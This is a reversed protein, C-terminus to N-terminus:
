VSFHYFVYRVVLEVLPAIFIVSDFRDLIGGHGPFITGYDKIGNQRKVASAFLDGCIGLVAAVIGLLAIALYYGLKVNLSSSFNFVNIYLVTILEGVLVSGIVGGIAGEVTKHPSVVPALKRKGFARGAFYASTDGGWAFGLTLILFYMADYGYQEKPLVAKLDVLSYFCLVVIASFIAMGSLKAFNVSNVNLVVCVALFVAFLYAMPLLWLRFPLYDSVMVLFLMPVFGIFIYLSREEFHFAMYIEHVAILCLAFIVINFFVTDFFFMLLVLLAVGVVSTIVRTRM